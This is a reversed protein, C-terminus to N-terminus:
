MNYPNWLKIFVLFIIILFALFYSKEECIKENSLTPPIHILLGKKRIHFGPSPHNSSKNLTECSGWLLLSILGLNGSLGPQPSLGPSVDTDRPAHGPDPYVCPRKPWTEPLERARHRIPSSREPLGSCFNCAGTGQLWAQLERGPGPVIVSFSFGEMTRQGAPNWKLKRFFNSGMSNNWFYLQSQM